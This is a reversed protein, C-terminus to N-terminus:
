LLPKLRFHLTVTSPIRSLPLFDGTDTLFTITIHDPNQDVVPKYVIRSPYYVSQNYKTAMRGLVNLYPLLKDGYYNPNIISCCVFLKSSSIKITEYLYDDIENTHMASEAIPVTGSGQFTFRKPLGLRKNLFDSLKIKKEKPEVNYELAMRSRLLRLSFNHDNSFCLAVISAILSSLSPIGTEQPLELDNESYNFETFQGIKGNPLSKFHIQDFKLDNQSEGSPIVESSYGLVKSVSEDMTIHYGEASKNSITVGVINGAEYRLSIHLPFTYRVLENNLLIIFQDFRSSSKIVHIHKSTSTQVNIKNDNLFLNYFSKNEEHKLVVPLVNPPEYNDAYHVNELGVEFNRLSFRVPLTNSFKYNTNSPFLETQLNSQMTYSFSEQEFEIM